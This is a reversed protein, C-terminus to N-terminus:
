HWRPSDTGLRREDTTSVEDAGAVSEMWELGMYFTKTDALALGVTTLVWDLLKILATLGAVSRASVMLDDMFASLGAGHDFQLGNTVIRVEAGGGEQMIACLVMDYFIIWLL